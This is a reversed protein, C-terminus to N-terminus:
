VQTWSGPASGSRIFSAAGNPPLALTTGSTLTLLTGALATDDQLTITFSGANVLSIESGVPLDGLTPKATMTVDAQSNIQVHAAKATPVIRDTAATLTQVTGQTAVPTAAAQSANQLFQNLTARWTELDATLHDRSDTRLQKLQFSSSAM